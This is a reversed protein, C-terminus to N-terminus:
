SKVEMAMLIAAQKSTIKLAELTAVLKRTEAAMIDGSGMYIVREVFKGHDLGLWCEPAPNPSVDAVWGLFVNQM